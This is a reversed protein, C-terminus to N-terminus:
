ENVKTYILGTTTWQDCIQSGSIVLHNGKFLLCVPLWDVYFENQNKTILKREKGLPDVMTFHDIRIVLDLEDNKYIGDKPCADVSQQRKLDLFTLMRDELEPWNGKSIELSLKREPFAEFLKNALTNYDRLFHKFGEAGAPKNCYYPEKKDREYMYDLYGVGRDKELYQITTEVNDRYLFLLVPNLPRIIDTLQEVFEQLQTFPLNQFLFTFIQFQFVASDIVFIRGSNKLAQETFYTWKDLAFKKYREVSFKWTDYELLAEYAEKSFKDKHYWNINNLNVEITKKRFIAISKLIESVEPYKELFLSFEEYTFGVEDFFLVPQPMAVEHVWESEMHNREMQIQLMRSNTTKGTSPMGEILVLQTNIM